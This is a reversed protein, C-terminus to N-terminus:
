GFVDGLDLTAHGVTGVRDICQLGDIYGRKDDGAVFVAEGAEVFGLEHVLVDLAALKAHYRFGPVVRWPFLWLFQASDEPLEQVCDSESSDASSKSLSNPSRRMGRGM